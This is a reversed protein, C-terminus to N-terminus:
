EKSRLKKIKSLITDALETKSMLDYHEQNGERDIITVINTDSKFGAGEKTLDNAVIFDLKKADVKRKANAILDQTEAAFGVLIQGDKKKEGLEKLIDPNRTLEIVWDGDGKKIKNEAVAKPRYDAV